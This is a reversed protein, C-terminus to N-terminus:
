RNFNKGDTIDTNILYRNIQESKFQKFTLMLELGDSNSFRITGDLQEAFLQMLQMGLSNSNLVDFDDPLGRGNDKVQLLIDDTNLYHLAINLTGQEHPQFAYKVVNTIAENLVLGLPVAQSVDLSIDQVDLKFKIRNVDAFSSGLYNVMEQIYALMNLSTGQHPQYLKQHILAVAQMRERSEKIANIASPHDLFESQANLLSIIM